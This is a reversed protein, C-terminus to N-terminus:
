HEESRPRLVRVARDVVVPRPVPGIGGWTNPRARVRGVVGLGDPTHEAATDNETPADTTSRERGLDLWAVGGRRGAGWTPVVYRYRSVRLWEVFPRNLYGVRWTRCTADHDTTIRIRM